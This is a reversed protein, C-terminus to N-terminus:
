SRSYHHAEADEEAQYEEHATQHEREPQHAVPRQQDGTAEQDQRQAGNEAHLGVKRDLPAAVSAQRGRRALVALAVFVALLAIVLVSIVDLDPGGQPPPATNEFDVRVIGDGGLVYLSPRDVRALALQKPAVAIAQGNPEGFEGLPSGQPTFAMVRKRDADPTFVRSAQDVAVGWPNAGTPFFNTAEFSTDFRQVRVNEWDAVFFSGDPAFALMMPQTFAGLDTGARGIQRMLQGTPTFVLIRNRGTDAIYLNGGVDVAMGNLGYTGFSELSITGVLEGSPSLRFIRPTGRDVAYYTDGFVAVGAPETLTVEGFRPGWESLLHGSPDFRMVTHRRIDSVVINGSPDVAIFGLEGGAPAGVGVRVLLSSALQHVGPLAATQQTAAGPRPLSLEVGTVGVFIAALALLALLGVLRRM